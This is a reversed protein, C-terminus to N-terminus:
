FSWEFGKGQSKPKMFAKPIITRGTRKGEAICVEKLHQKDRIYVPKSSINEWTGAVWDKKNAVRKGVISRKSTGYPDLKEKENICHFMPMAM